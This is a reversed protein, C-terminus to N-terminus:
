DCVFPYIGEICEDSVRKMSSPMQSTYRRKLHSPLQAHVQQIERILLARLHAMDNTLSGKNVALELQNLESL